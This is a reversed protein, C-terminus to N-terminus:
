DEKAQVIFYPFTLTFSEAIIGYTTKPRASKGKKNAM